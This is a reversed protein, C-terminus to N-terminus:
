WTLDSQEPLQDELIEKWHAFNCLFHHCGPKERLWMRGLLRKIARCAMRRTPFKKKLNRKQVRGPVNVDTSTPPYGRSLQRPLPFNTDHTTDYGGCGQRHRELNNLT